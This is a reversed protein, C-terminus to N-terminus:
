TQNEPYFEEVYQPDGILQLEAASGRLTVVEKLRMSTLSLEFDGKFNLPIPIENDLRVDGLRIRGDTLDVPFESFKGKVDAGDIRLVARQVWGTGADIGPRGESEHIYVSSFHLEAKGPLLLARELTSDHIEIVRNIKSSNHGKREKWAHRIQGVLYLSGTIFIADDPRATALAHDLAAEANNIVSCHNAHHSAMQALQSASIVRPNNPQTFIVEAALPFLLGTVEDVAKDRMAGYILLIRRGSFNEELFRALERAAGPNHAGDLYLDPHSQLKELRGPWQASAIGREISENTIHFHKAQLLLTAAVANLANQLQFRGPL